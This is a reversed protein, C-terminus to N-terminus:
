RFMKGTDVNSLVMAMENDTPDQTLDRETILCGRTNLGYGVKTAWTEKRSYPINGGCMLRRLTWIDYKMSNAGPDNEAHVWKNANVLNALGLFHGLEHAIMIGTADKDKIAKSQSKEDRVSIGYPKRRLTRDWTMGWTISGAPDDHAPVVLLTIANRRTHKKRDPLANIATVVRDFGAAKGTPLKGGHGFPVIAVDRWAQFKFHIGHPRWIRNVVIFAKEWFAKPEPLRVDLGVFYPRVLVTRPKTVVVNMDLLKVSDDRKLKVSVQTTGEKEGQLRLTMVRDTLLTGMTIMSAVSEDASEAILQTDTSLRLREINVRVDTVSKETKPARLPIVPGVVSGGTSIKASITGRDDIDPSRGSPPRSKADPDMDSPARRVSLLPVRLIYGNGKKYEDKIIKEIKKISKDGFVGDVRLGSDAQFGLIAHETRPGNQGDVLGGYYGMHQLRRQIGALSPNRFSRVEFRRVVSKGVVTPKIEGLKRWHSLVVAEPDEFEFTESDQNYLVYKTDLVRFTCSDGPDVRFTYYGGGHPKLPKPVDEVHIDGCDIIKAGSTGPLDQFALIVDATTGTVERSM